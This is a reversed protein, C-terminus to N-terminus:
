TFLLTAVMSTSGISRLMSNNYEKNFGVFRKNCYNDQVEHAQSSAM